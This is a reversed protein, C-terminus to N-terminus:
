EEAQGTLAQFVAEPHADAKAVRKWHKKVRGDPGIWVTSRIVGQTKKGYMMKEGFAEYRGMMQKDPDCLLPFPLKYKAAFKGHSAPKDPSVGVVVAGRAQIKKWLDRFGCAEKTCGPTDDRPYFYLILDKGAYDALSVRAGNADELTFAPAKKGVEIAM